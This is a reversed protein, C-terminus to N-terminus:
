AIGLSMAFLMQANYTSYTPPEFCTTLQSWGNLQFIQGWWRLQIIGEGPPLKKNMGTRPWPNEKRKEVRAALTRPRLLAEWRAAFLDQVDRPSREQFRWERIALLECM